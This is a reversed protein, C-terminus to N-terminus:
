SIVLMEKCLYLDGGPDRIFGDDRLCMGLRDRADKIYVADRLVGWVMGLKRSIGLM